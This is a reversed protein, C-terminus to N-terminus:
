LGGFSQQTKGKAVTLVASEQLSTRFSDFGFVKKLTKRVWGELGSSRRDNM